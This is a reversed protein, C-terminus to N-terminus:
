ELITNVLIVIDLINLQGDQNLDGAILYDNNLILNALSVLDLINLIGDGNIDGNATIFYCDGWDVELSNGFVNSIVNYFPDIGFCIGDGEYDSFSIQTLLGSGEPISTGTMSFGLVSSSSSSIVFDNDESLGGSADNVTIGLLEFQFGAIEQNTSINIGLSNSSISVNDISLSVQPLRGTTIFLATGSEIRSAAAPYVNNFTYELGMTSMHNEIGVTSYCGHTPTGGNPYYGDSENSFDQYQIKIESDGTVTPSMYEKNYLIIQFTQRNNGDYTRMDDWQIVVQDDSAHYYVYGGSGTLLDDWFAAVMPSAGGAGPIPYNRFASMSHEGFSLWGNTNIQIKDYEIGYFTFSFPLVRELTNCTYCSNGNGSDSINLQEGVGEAIEVWDYEPALEYEVDGSDYIYYGHADPGLPDTERVDGVTVNIVHMRSYGDSSTILLEMPIVSGNIINEDFTLEFDNLNIQQGSLLEDIMISPSYVFVQNGHSLLEFSYDVMDRSGNNEMALELITNFGPEINGDYGSIFLSPGMVHVPVYNVWVNDNSDTITLFMSLEEMHYATGHVYISFDVVAGESMALDGVTMMPDLITVYESNSSLEVFVDDAMSTGYNHLSIAIDTEEGSNVHIESSNMSVAAGVADSIEISGEYPRHNRKIVTIDMNGSMVADWTLTIQGNEDTLGTTFIDDDGMLLTVRAGEVVNGDENFVMIEVMTTGLPIVDLYDVAFNNPIATWLHLAPDGILNSWGTFAETANGPNSPYTAIM